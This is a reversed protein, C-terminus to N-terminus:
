IAAIAILFEEAHNRFKLCPCTVVIDVWEKAALESLCESVALHTIRQDWPSSKSAARVGLLYWLLEPQLGFNSGVIQTDFGFRRMFLATHDASKNREKFSLTDWHHLAYRIVEVATFHTKM